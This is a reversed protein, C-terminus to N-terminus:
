AAEGEFLDGLAAPSLIRQIFDHLTEAPGFWAVDDCVKGDLVAQDIALLAMRLRAVEGALREIDDLCSQMHGVSIVEMVGAKRKWAREDSRKGTEAFKGLADRCDTFVQRIEAIPISTTM